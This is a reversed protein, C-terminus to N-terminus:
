AGFIIYLTAILELIGIVIMVCLAKKGPKKIKANWIFCISTFFLMFFYFFTLDAKTFYHIILVLPFVLAASTVPVGTFYMAGTREAEAQREEETANFYALRILATLVYFVAIGLLIVLIWYSGEYDKRKVLETFIGSRRLQSVGIAAPLVGFAILDSLSDIQIGFNKEIETRDKKTRAVKGDFADLIGSTMLFVVGMYPHGIGTMTLIIGLVGSIM